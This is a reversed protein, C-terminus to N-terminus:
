QRGRKAGAVRERRAARPDVTLPRYIEIRDGEAVVRARDCVAGFIGVAANDWPIDPGDAALLRAAAIADAVTAGPPLELPWLWQMDPLAYAVTCRKVGDGSM